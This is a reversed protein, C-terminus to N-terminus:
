WLARQEKLAKAFETTENAKIFTPGTQRFRGTVIALSSSRVSSMRATLKV